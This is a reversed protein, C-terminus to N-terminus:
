KEIIIPGGVHPEGQLFIVTVGVRAARALLAYNAVERAITEDYVTLEFGTTYGVPIANPQTQEWVAEITQGASNYFSAIVEGCAVDQDSQNEVEGWIKYYGNDTLAGHHNIVSLGRYPEEVTDYWEWQIKLRQFDEAGGQLHVFVKFPSSEDPLLVDVLTGASAVGVVQEENDYVTVSINIQHAIGEGNNKLEGVVVLDGLISPHYTAGIFDLLAEPIDAHTVISGIGLMSAFLLGILIIRM